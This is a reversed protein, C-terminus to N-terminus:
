NVSQSEQTIVDKLHLKQKKLEQILQENPFPRNEEHELKANLTAHKSQLATMHNANV